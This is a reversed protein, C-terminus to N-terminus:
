GAYFALLYGRAKVNRQPETKDKWDREKRNDRICNMTVSRVTQSRRTQSTTANLVVVLEAM